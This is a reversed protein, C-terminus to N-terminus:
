VSFYGTILFEGVLNRARERLRNWQLDTGPQTARELRPLSISPGPGDTIKM